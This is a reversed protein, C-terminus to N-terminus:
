KQYTVPLDILQQYLIKETYKVYWFDNFDILKQGEDNKSVSCDPLGGRLDPHDGKRHAYRSGLRIYLLAYQLLGEVLICISANLWLIGVDCEVCVCV